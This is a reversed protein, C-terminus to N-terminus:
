FVGFMHEFEITWAVVINRPLQPNIETPGRVCRRFGIVWFDIQARKIPFEFKPKKFGYMVRLLSFQFFILDISDGTYRNKLIYTAGECPGGMAVRGWKPTSDNWIM